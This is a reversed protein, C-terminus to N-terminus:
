KRNANKMEQIALQTMTEALYKKWADDSLNRFTRSSGNSYQIALSNIKVYKRHTQLTLEIQVHDNVLLDLSLVPVKKKNPYFNLTHIGAPVSAMKILRGGQPLDGLKTDDLYATLGYKNLLLNGKLELDMTVFYEPQATYSDEALSAPSIALVVTIIMILSLLVNIALNKKM